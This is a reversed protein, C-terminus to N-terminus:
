ADTGDLRECIERCHDAYRNLAREIEASLKSHVGQPTSEAALVRSVRDPISVMADRLERLGAGIEEGLEEASVLKGAARQYELEQRQAQITLLRRRAQDTEDSRALERQLQWGIVLATDYTNEAGRSEALDVIPFGPEAQWDTLTRESVGLIESLERKNVLKGL